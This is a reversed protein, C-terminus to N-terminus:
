GQSSNKWELFNDVVMRTEAQADLHMDLADHIRERILDLDAGSTNPNKCENHFIAIEIQVKKLYYDARASAKSVEEHAKGLQSFFESPDISM